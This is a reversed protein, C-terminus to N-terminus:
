KLIRTIARLAQTRRQQWNGAILLADIGRAALEDEIIAQFALRDQGVFQRTGDNV